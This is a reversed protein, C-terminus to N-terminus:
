ILDYHVGWKMMSRYIGLTKHKNVHMPHANGCHICPQSPLPPSQTAELYSLTVQYWQGEM